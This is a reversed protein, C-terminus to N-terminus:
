AAQGSETARRAAIRAPQGAYWRWVQARAEDASDALAYTSACMIEHEESVQWEMLVWGCRACVRKPPPAAARAGRGGLLGARRPQDRDAGPRAWRAEAMARAAATVAESARGEVNSHVRDREIGVRAGRRSCGCSTTRGQRLHTARVEIEKGCDCVCKFYKRGANARDAPGLVRLRGFREYSKVRFDYTV